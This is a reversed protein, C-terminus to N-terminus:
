HCSAGSSGNAGSSNFGWTAFHYAGSHYAINGGINGTYGRKTAHFALYTARNTRYYINLYATGSPGNTYWSMYAYVRGSGYNCLGKLEVYASAGTPSAVQGLSNAQRVANASAVSATLSVVLVTVAAVAVLRAMASRLTHM